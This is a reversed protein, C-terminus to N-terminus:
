SPTTPDFFIVVSGASGASVFIKESQSVPIKLGFVINDGGNSIALINRDVSNSSPSLFAATTVNPDSSLIARGTAVAVMAVATVVVDFDPAWSSTGAASFQLAVASV